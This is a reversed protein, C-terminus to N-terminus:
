AIGLLSAVKQASEEISEQEARAHVVINNEQCEKMITMAIREDFELFTRWLKDGESLREIQTRM